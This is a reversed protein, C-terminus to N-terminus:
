LVAEGVFVGSLTVQVGGASGVTEVSVWCGHMASDSPAPSVACPLSLETSWVSTTSSTTFTVSTSGSPFTVATFATGAPRQPASRITFTGSGSSVFGRVRVVFGRAGQYSIHGYIPTYALFVLRATTGTNIPATQLYSNIYVNRTKYSHLNNAARAVDVIKHISAPEGKDDYTTNPEFAGKTYDPITGIYYTPGIGYDYPTSPTGGTSLDADDAIFAHTNKQTSQVSAIDDYEIVYTRAPDFGALGTTLTITTGGPGGNVIDFWELPVPQDVSYIHVRDQNVFYLADTVPWLAHSYEHPLVTLTKTGADYSVVRASPSWFMVRPVKEPLFVIRCKGQGTQLDFQCNLVWGYVVAGRTGTQPDIMYNDTVSVSDGPAMRMLSANYSREAVALPRSFYALAPAIAAPAIQPVNIIGPADITVTRRKGYDSQSAIDEVIWTQAPNSDGDMGYGFKVVVRNIVGEAAREVKVRDPGRSGMCKNSETLAWTTAVTNDATPRVITLKPQTAASSAKWVIYHNSAQLIPELYKYFPRPENVLYMLAIDRLGEFSAIDVLSAPVGIGFGASTYTDYTADNYGSAGGTSLMTRLMIEGASGHEFWVQKITPPAVADGLRVYGFQVDEKNGAMRFLGNSTNLQGRVVITATPSGATYTVSYIAGDFDGGKVQVLGNVLPAYSQGMDSVTQTIFTGIQSSVELRTGGLIDQKYYVIPAQDAVLEWINDSVRKMKRHVILEGTVTSTLENGASKEWGLLNWAEKHMGIAPYNSGTIATTNAWLRVRYRPPGDDGTDILVLEWLDGAHYPAGAARWVEFQAKVAAAVRDHTMRATTFGLSATLNYVVGQTNVLYLTDQRNTLIVGEQLNAQWQESGVARNLLEIASKAVITIKGDGEDRYTVIRGTIARYAASPLNYLGTLPDRVHILLHVFRGYWTKPYDTVAPATTASKTVNNGILHSSSFAGGSSTQNLAFKGRTVTGGFTTATTSTYTIAEDGIYITGSAAFGATSKVNIPTTAGALVNSTLYTRHGLAYAERFLAAALTGQKDSVTFEFTNAQIDQAYLQIAQDLTGTVMLGPSPDAWANYPVGAASFTGPMPDTSYVTGFGEIVFSLAAGAQGYTELWTLTGPTAMTVDDDARDLSHGM